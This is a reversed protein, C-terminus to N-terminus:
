FLIEFNYKQPKSKSAQIKAEANSAKSKPNLKSIKYLKDPLEALISIISEVLCIIFRLRYYYVVMLTLFLALIKM